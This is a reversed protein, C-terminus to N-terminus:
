KSLSQKLLLLAETIENEVSILEDISALPNTDIFERSQFPKYRGASLNFNESKITEVDAFWWKKVWKEDM